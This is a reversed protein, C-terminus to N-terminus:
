DDVIVAGCGPCRGSAIVTEVRVQDDAWPAASIISTGCAPCAFAYAARRERERRWQQVGLGLAAAAGALVAIPASLIAVHGLEGVAMLVGFVTLGVAPIAAGVAAGPALSARGSALAAVDDRRFAVIDNSSRSPVAPLDSSV